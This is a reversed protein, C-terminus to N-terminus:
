NVPDWDAVASRAQSYADKLEFVAADETGAAKKLKQKYKGGELNLTSVEKKTKEDTPPMKLLGQQDKMDPRALLKKLAEDQSAPSSKNLSKARSTVSKAKAVM